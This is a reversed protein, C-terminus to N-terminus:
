RSHADSEILLVPDGTVSISAAAATIENSVAYLDTRTLSAKELPYKCGSLTIESAGLSFLSFYAFQAKELTVSENELIRARNAGDTLTLAVGSQHLREILFVNALTHDLRGGTGGIVLIERAGREIAIRCALTTDTDDKEAPVRLIEAAELASPVPASDFDGVIIDPRVGCQKALLWGADAAIILDGHLDETLLLKSQCVGGTFIVARLSKATDSKM